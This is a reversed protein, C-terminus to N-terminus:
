IDLQGDSSSSPRCISFNLAALFYPVRAVKRAPINAAASPFVAGRQRRRIWDAVRMPRGFEGCNHM